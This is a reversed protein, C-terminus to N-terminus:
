KKEEETDEKSEAETAEAPNSEESAEIDASEVEPASEEQPVEEAVPAAAKEEPKKTDESKKTSAKKKKKPKSELEEKVLQLSALEAADGPRTRTRVIRTYGGPRSKFKPGIETFLKHVVPKDMLFSYAKRRATLNDEGAITILKEAVRRLDKAKEVTTEISENIFLSTTMNRFMARRHAPTRNFKRFSKAHRM